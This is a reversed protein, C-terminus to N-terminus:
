SPETLALTAAGVRLPSLDSVLTVLSASEGGSVAGAASCVVFCFMLLVSLVEDSLLVGAAGLSPVVFGFVFRVDVGADVTVDEGDVVLVVM